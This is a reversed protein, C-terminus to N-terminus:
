EIIADTPKGPEYLTKVGLGVTPAENLGRDVSPGAEKVILIDNGRQGAATEAKQGHDGSKSANDPRTREKLRDFLSPM